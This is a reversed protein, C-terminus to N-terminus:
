NRRIRVHDGFANNQRRGAADVGLERANGPSSTRAKTGSGSTHSIVKLQSVKALDTILEDTMGDSFIRGPDNSLNTLSARLPIFKWPRSPCLHPAGPEWHKAM